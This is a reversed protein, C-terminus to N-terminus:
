AFHYGIYPEIYKFKVDRVAWLKILIRYQFNCLNWFYGRISLRLLRIMNFTMTILWLDEILLLIAYLGFDITRGKSFIHGFYPLKDFM